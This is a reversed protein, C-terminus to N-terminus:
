DVFGLKGLTGMTTTDIDMTKLAMGSAWAAMITGNDCTLEGGLYNGEVSIVVQHQKESADDFEFMHDYANVVKTAQITVGCREQVVREAAQQMTEGQRQATRPFGWSAGAGQMGNKILLAGGFNFVLVEVYVCPHNLSAKDM